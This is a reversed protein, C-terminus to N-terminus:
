AFQKITDVSHRESWEQSGLLTCWDANLWGTDGVM